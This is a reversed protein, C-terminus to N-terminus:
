YLVFPCNFRFIDWGLLISWFKESNELSCITFADNFKNWGLEIRKHSERDGNFSDHRWLVVCQQWVGLTFYPMTTVDEMKIVELCGKKTSGLTASTVWNLYNLTPSNTKEQPKSTKYEIPNKDSFYFHLQTM